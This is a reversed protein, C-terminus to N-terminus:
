FNDLLSLIETDNGFFTDGIDDRESSIASFWDYLFVPFIFVSIFVM